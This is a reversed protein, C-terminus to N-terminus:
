IWMYLMQLVYIGSYWMYVSVVVHMSMIFIINTVLHSQTLAPWRMLLMFPLPSPQSDAM